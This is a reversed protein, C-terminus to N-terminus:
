SLLHSLKELLQLLFPHANLRERPQRNQLFDPCPLRPRLGHFRAPRRTMTRQFYFRVFRFPRPIEIRSIQKLDPPNKGIQLTKQVTLTKQVANPRVIDGRLTGKISIYSPVM